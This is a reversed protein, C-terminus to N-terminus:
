LKHMDFDLGADRLEKLLKYQWSGGEDLEIYVLGEIDSPLEVGPEYLVTARARGLQGVFFGYEFVVNQRARPKQEGDAGRLGGVDDGTLLVVAYKSESAHEEFKEILTRGRSAQEDLIVVRHTGSKELFRAVEERKGINRGHVLFVVAENVPGVADDAAPEEPSRALFPETALALREKLSVLTNVGNELTGRDQAFRQAVSGGGLVVGPQATRRFESGPSDEEYIADVAEKTFNIWRRRDRRWSEYDDETQVDAAAELLKSGAEIQNDLLQEAEARPKKLTAM